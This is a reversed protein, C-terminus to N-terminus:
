SWKKGLDLHRGWDSNVKKAEKGGYRHLTFSIYETAQNEEKWESLESKGETSGFNPIVANEVDGLSRNEQKLTDERCDVSPLFQRGGPDLLFVKEKGFSNSFM